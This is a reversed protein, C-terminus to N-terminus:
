EGSGESPEDRSLLQQLLSVTTQLTAVNEKDAARLKERLNAMEQKWRELETRARALEARAETVDKTAQALQKDKEEVTAHLDRVHTALGQKENETAELKASLELARATATEGPAVHLRAGMVGPPDGVIPPMGYAVPAQTVCPAPSDCRRHFPHMACGCVLLVALGVAPRKPLHSRIHTLGVEGPSLDLVVSRTGMFM